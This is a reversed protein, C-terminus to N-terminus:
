DQTLLEPVIAGEDNLRNLFEVEKEQLPMVAGLLQRCEEVLDGTWSELERREPALDGRLMPVLQREVDDPTTGIM